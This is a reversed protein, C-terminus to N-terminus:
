PDHSKTALTILITGVSIISSSVGRDPLKKVKRVVDWSGGLSSRLEKLREEFTAIGPNQVLPNPPQWNPHQNGCQPASGPLGAHAMSVRGNGGLLLAM